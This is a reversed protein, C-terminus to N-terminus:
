SEITLFPPYVGLGFTVYWYRLALRRVWDRFLLLLSSRWARSAGPQLSFLPPEGAVWAAAKCLVVLGPFVFHLRWEQSCQTLIKCM